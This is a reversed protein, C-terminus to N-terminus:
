IVRSGAAVRARVSWWGEFCSRGMLAVSEAEEPDYFFVAKERCPTLDMRYRHAAYADGLRDRFHVVYRVRNRM